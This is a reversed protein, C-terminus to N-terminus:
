EAQLAERVVPKRNKPLMCKCMRFITGINLLLHGVIMAITLNTATVHIM